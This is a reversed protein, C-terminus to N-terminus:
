SLHWPPRMPKHLLRNAEADNLFQEHDADWYLTRNLREAINGLHCVSVSRAGIEANCITRSRSRISDIWNQKHDDSRFLHIENPQILVRALHGPSLRLESRNVFIDGDSGKFHIGNGQDQMTVTVNEPYRYTLLRGTQDPPTIELPGNKDMGLGWQVIDFHHAGWDTMGGGSYDMYNRWRGWREDEIPPALAHHYPRYPAPGLWLEWNLTEPVQEGPLWCFQPFTFFGTQIYVSVTKIEGIYGNRVLECAFRFKEDSRQQSGTQFISGYREVTNVIHRAESVTLSLPKECYIDKGSKAAFDAMLAHWHDPTAIVVADIDPRSILERFDTYLACCQYNEKGLRESNIKDARDRAATLKQQDVDCLALIQVDPMHLFGWLHGSGQKGLGIIGLTIRNLPQVTKAKASLAGSIFGGSLLLMNKLFDRRRIPNMPHEPKDPLHVNKLSPNHFDKSPM